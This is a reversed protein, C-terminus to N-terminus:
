LNSATASPQIETQTGLEEQLVKDGVTLPRSGQLIFAMRTWETESPNRWEHMTGRQVAIDGKKLLKMEGSDLWMEISGELVIGYDLSQTRHMLGKTGSKLPAFDVVRCVTGSPSVLGLSGSAILSEHTTLDADGSMEVPFQSTTFAVNFRLSGSDYERFASETASHVISTGDAGHTTIYRTFNPLTPTNHPNHSSM